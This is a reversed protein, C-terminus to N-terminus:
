QLISAGIIGADNGLQAIVFRTKLDDGLVKIRSKVASALDGGQGSVGGGLVVVEPQLINVINALGVCLYNLYNDLVTKAATNGAKAVEFINKVVEADLGVKAADRVLAAASAYAEWCGRGGCGCLEGDVQIVHHGVEGAGFFSGSYIKGDVIIGGGIGTGLTITVSNNSGVAAGFLAEALAACNADNEVYVPLGLASGVAQAVPVDFFGINVACVITGTHPNVTGPCGVGVSKVPNPSDAILDRCLGMIDEIVKDVGRTPLTPASKKTILKGDDGVLGIAINTGGLDVGIRM